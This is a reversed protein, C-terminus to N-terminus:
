LRAGPAKIPVILNGM